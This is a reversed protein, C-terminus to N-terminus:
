HFFLDLCAWMEFREGNSDGLSVTVCQCLGRKRRVKVTEKSCSNWVLTGSGAYEGLECSVSPLTKVQPMGLKCGHCGHVVLLELAFALVSYTGRNPPYDRGWTQSSQGEAM